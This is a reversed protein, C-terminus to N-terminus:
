FLELSLHVRDKDEQVIGLYRRTIEWSSHNFIEMLLIPLIGARWAFLGFSKRLSHCSICGPIKVALAALKIIRWAQIRSIPAANRRNNCFIFSDGRRTEQFWLRLARVAKNNLAIKKQKGTKCETVFFHSRFAGAEFDYVDGWRLRLLDSIRLASYVGLVILTYNRFNRRALWYEALAKLQKEDRIPDTTM